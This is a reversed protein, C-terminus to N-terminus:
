TCWEGLVQRLLNRVSSIFEELRGENVLMIDALAIVNGLGWSLEKIDRERFEDWNKPDGPRGRKLLREFRTRPSAHIAMIVVHCSLKHRFYEVENLSRVGDIMVACTDLSQVKKLTLMAIAHPGYTCRLEDAVRLLNALTPELGRRSAEERVVDGMTVVPIGMESAISTVISKGAGPMGAILIAIRPM